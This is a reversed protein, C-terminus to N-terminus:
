AGGGAADKAVSPPLPSRLLLAPDRRSGAPTRVRPRWAGRGALAGPRRTERSPGVFPLGPLVAAGAVAACFDRGRELATKFGDM